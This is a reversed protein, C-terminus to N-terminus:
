IKMIQSRSRGNRVGNIILFGPAVFVILVEAGIFNSFVKLKREIAAIMMPTSMDNKMGNCVVDISKMGAIMMNVLAMMRCKEMSNVRRLASGSFGNVVPGYRKERCGM